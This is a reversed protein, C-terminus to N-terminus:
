YVSSRFFRTNGGNWGPEPVLAEGGVLANTSVAVWEVLNSSAELVCTRRGEDLLKVAIGAGPPGALSIVPPALPLLSHDMVFNGISYGCSQAALNGSMFHIGGYVRSVGSEDAAEGFGDFSRTVGPLGESTATFAIADTGFFRALVTAAARSFTSHGSTYEPFPPTPLLPLWAPDATTEPNGDTEAERIATIPRWLSYAYKADWCAIGADATAFNLLAFLRASEAISLNRNSAVGQAIVNWHGPPTATGAGDSWFYAIETQDATRVPSNWAGLSQTLNVEMAYASAAISPPPPPRFQDGSIMAFPTVNGWGPLVAPAHAPLTPRWVGPTPANTYTVSLTSGDTSRWQLLAEGVTRGWAVGDTKAPGEPLGGLGAVYRVAFNTAQIQANAFLGTLVTYAASAVAADPSADQPARDWIVYPEHTRHIGNVADYMAAHVTALHRAALPPPTGAARIADLAANNWDVVPDARVM